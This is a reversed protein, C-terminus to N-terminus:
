ADTSLLLLVGPPFMLTYGTLNQQGVHTTGSTVTIQPTRHVEVALRGISM